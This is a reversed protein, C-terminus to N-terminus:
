REDTEDKSTSFIERLTAEDLRITAAARDLGGATEAFAIEDAGIPREAGSAPADKSYAGVMVRSPRAIRGNLRYGRSLERVVVHEHDPDSVAETGVAESLSPDFPLGLVPIRELGEKRLIQLLQTRVLILGDILPNGAYSREASELARDFNDLVEIFHMLLAERRREQRREIELKLRDRFGETELKLQRYAKVVEAVRAEAVRARQELAAADSAAAGEAAPPAALGEAAADAHLSVGAEVAAAPKAAEDGPDQGM